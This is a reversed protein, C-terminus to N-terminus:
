EKVVVVLELPETSISRRRPGDLTGANFAVASFATAAGASEDGDSAADVGVGFREQLRDSESEIAEAFDENGEMPINEGVVGVGGVGVIGEVIEVEEAADNEYEIGLLPSRLERDLVVPGAPPLPSSV